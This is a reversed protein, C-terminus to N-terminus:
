RYQGGLSGFAPFPGSSRATPRFRGLGYLSLVDRQIQATRGRRLGVSIRAHEEGYFRRPNRFGTLRRAVDESPDARNPAPM